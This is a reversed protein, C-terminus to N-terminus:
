DWQGLFVGFFVIIFFNIFFEEFEVQVANHKTKKQGSLDCTFIGLIRVTVDLIKSLQNLWFLPKEAV